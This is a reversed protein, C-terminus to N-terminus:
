LSKLLRLCLYPSPKFPFLIHLPKGLIPIECYRVVGRKRIIPFNIYHCIALNIMNSHLPYNPRCAPALLLALAKCAWNLGHCRGMPCSFVCVQFRPSLVSSSPALVHSVLFLLKRHWVVDMALHYCGHILMKKWWENLKMGQPSRELQGEGRQHISCMMLVVSPQM